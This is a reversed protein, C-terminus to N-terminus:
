VSGKGPHWGSVGLLSSIIFQQETCLCVCCDSGEVCCSTISAIRRHVPSFELVATHPSTLMVLDVWRRENQALGLLTTGSSISHTSTPGVIDLQYREVECVLELEQWLSSLLCALFWEAIGLSLVGLDGDKGEVWSVTCRVGIGTGSPHPGM